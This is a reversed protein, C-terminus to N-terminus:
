ETIEGSDPRDKRPPVEFDGERRNIDALEDLLPSFGPMLVSKNSKYLEWDIVVAEPKGHRMIMQPSEHVSDLIRSIKLKAEAATWSTFDHLAGGTHDIINYKQSNINIM